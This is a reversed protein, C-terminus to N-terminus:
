EQERYGPGYKPSTHRPGPKEDAEQLRAMARALALMRHDLIAISAMIDSQRAAEMTDARAPLVITRPESSEHRGSQALAILTDMAADQHHQLLRMAADLQETNAQIIRRETLEARADVTRGIQVSVSGWAAAATFLGTILRSTWTTMTQKTM